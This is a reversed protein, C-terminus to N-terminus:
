HSRIMNTIYASHRLKRNGTEPLPRPSNRTATPGENSDIKFNNRNNPEQTSTSFPVLFFTTSVLVKIYYKYFM